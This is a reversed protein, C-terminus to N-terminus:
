RSLVYSLVGCLGIALFGVGNTVLVVRTLWVPFSYLPLDLDEAMARQINSLIEALVPRKRCGDLAVVAGFLVMVCFALLHGFDSM